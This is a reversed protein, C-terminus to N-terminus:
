QRVHKIMVWVTERRRRSDVKRRPGAAVEGHGGGGGVDDVGTEVSIEAIGQIGAGYLYLSISKEELGLHGRREAGEMWGM